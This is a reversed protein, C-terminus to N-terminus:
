IIYWVGMPSFLSDSMTDVNWSESASNEYEGADSHLEVGDLAAMNEAPEPCHTIKRVLHLALQIFGLTVVDKPAYASTM